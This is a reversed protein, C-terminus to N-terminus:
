MEDYVWVKTQGDTVMDYLEEVNENLLRICGRSAAHGIEEPKITGHIGFGDRGLADGELGELGIWREGLPNDPDDPKYYKGTEQDPWAPNEQKTGAQSRWLGTPTPRDPAGMGVPYVRAIVDGLYVLM